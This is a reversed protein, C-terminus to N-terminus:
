VGDNLKNLFRTFKGVSLKEFSIGLDSLKIFLSDPISETYEIEIEYDVVGLYESKDLCIEVGDSYIFSHRTTKLSGLLIAMTNVGTLNFVKDDTFLEPISDIDFESEESVQLAKTKSKHRKIQIKNKGNTTRVRFTIGHQKLLGAPDTYYSNTQEFVSDWEFMAKVTDFQEKSIISKLETEIM